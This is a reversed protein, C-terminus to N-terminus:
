LVQNYSTKIGGPQSVWWSLSIAHQYQRFSCKNRRKPKGSHKCPSNRGRGSNINCAPDQCNGQTCAFIERRTALRGVRQRCTTNASSTGLQWCTRFLSNVVQLLRTSIILSTAFTTGLLRFCDHYLLITVVKHRWGRLMKTMDHSYWVERFLRTVFRIIGYM